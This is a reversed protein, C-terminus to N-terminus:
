AGGRTRSGPPSERRARVAGSVAASLGIPGFDAGGGGSRRRTRCGTGAGPGSRHSGTSTFTSTRTRAANSSSAHGRPLFQEAIPHSPQGLHRHGSGFRVRHHQRLQLRQTFADWPQGAGQHRRTVPQEDCVIQRAVDLGVAHRRQGGRVKRQRIAQGGGRVPAAEVLDHHVAGTAVDDDVGRAPRRQGHERVGRHVDAAEVQLRPRHGAGDGVM